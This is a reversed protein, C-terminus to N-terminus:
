GIRVPTAESFGETSAADVIGGRNGPTFGGGVRGHDAAAGGAGAVHAQGQRLADGYEPLQQLRRLIEEKQGGEVV